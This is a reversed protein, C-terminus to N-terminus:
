TQGLRAGARSRAHARRRFSRLIKTPPVCRQSVGKSNESRTRLFVRGRGVGQGHTDKPQPGWLRLWNRSVGEPGRVGPGIGRAPASARVRALPRHSSVPRPCIHAHALTGDRPRPLPTCKWPVTPRRAGRAGERRDGAPDSALRQGGPGPSGEHESRVRVRTRLPNPISLSLSLSLILSWVGHARHGM